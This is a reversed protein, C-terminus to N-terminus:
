FFSAIAGSPIAADTWTGWFTSEASQNNYETAIWNASLAANRLRFEDITGDMLQGTPATYRNGVRLKAGANFTNADTQTASVAGDVYISRSSNSTFVAHALYFTNISLVGSQAQDDASNGQSLATIKGSNVILGQEHSSTGGGVYGVTSVIATSDFEIWAQMTIPCAISAGTIGTNEHYPSATYEVGKGIKGTQDYTPSGSETLDGNGTSNVLTSATDKMHLVAVYDSWVANRGYTDTTAYDASSGDWVVYMSVTSTLSPVKVHMETVSVIERAWETTKASEAYVRVSQAEALTTIGIRSLDVYTPFNTQTAPVSAANVTALKFGAAM